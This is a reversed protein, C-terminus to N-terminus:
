DKKLRTETDQEDNFDRKKEHHNARRKIDNKEDSRFQFFPFASFMEFWFSAQSNVIQHMEIAGFIHSSKESIFSFYVIHAFALVPLVASMETFVTRPSVQRAHEFLGWM